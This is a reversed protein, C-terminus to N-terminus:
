LPPFIPYPSSKEFLSSVKFHLKHALRALWVGSKLRELLDCANELPPVNAENFVYRQLWDCIDERIVCMSEDLVQVVFIRHHVCKSFFCCVCFPLILFTLCSRIGSTM